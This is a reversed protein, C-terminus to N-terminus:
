IADAIDYIAKLDKCVLEYAEEVTIDRQEHRAKRTGVMSAEMVETSKTIRRCLYYKKNSTIGFVVLKALWVPFL